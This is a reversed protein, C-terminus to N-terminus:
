IADYLLSKGSCHIGKEECIKQVLDVYWKDAWPNVLVDQVLEAVNPVRINIDRGENEIGNPIILPITDVVAKLAAEKSNISTEENIQKINLRALDTRLKVAKQKSEEVTKERELPKVIFRYEKEHAFAKRKYFFAEITKGEKMVAKMQLNAFEEKTATSEYVVAKGFPCYQNGLIIEKIKDEASKIRISKGGYSYIRWLADNEEDSTTWCQGYSGTAAFILNGYNSVMRNAINLPTDSSEADYLESFFSEQFEKREMMKYACGEYSDDWKMPDVFHLTQFTVLTMFEEFSMYRYLDM